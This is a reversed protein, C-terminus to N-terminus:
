GPLLSKFLHIVPESSVWAALPIAATASVGVWTFTARATQDLVAAGCALVSALCAFTGASLTLPLLSLPLLEFRVAIVFFIAVPAVFTAALGYFSHGRRIPPGCPTDYNLWRRPPM